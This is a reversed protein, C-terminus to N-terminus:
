FEVEMLDCGLETCPFIARAVDLGLPDAALALPNVHVLILRGVGAQRAVQVVPTICSHGTKGAWPAEDDRFYCEHVLLDVGHIKPVYDADLRATTDTVYAM